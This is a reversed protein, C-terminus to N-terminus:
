RNRCPQLFLLDKIRLLNVASSPQKVKFASTCVPASTCLDTLLNLLEGEARGFSRQKACLRFTYNFLFASPVSVDPTESWWLNFKSTHAPLPSILM